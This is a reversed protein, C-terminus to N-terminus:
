VDLSDLEGLVYDNTSERNTASVQSKEVNQRQTAALFPLV